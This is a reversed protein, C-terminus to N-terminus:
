ALAELPVSVATPLDQGTIEAGEAALQQLLRHEEVSLYVYPLRETRGPRHHVGGLNIKRLVTPERRYLQAVAEISGVLVATKVADSDWERLRAGAAAVTGFVVEMGDPVAMRYLEQEWGARAVEDDALVIRTLGIGQGWGVVVQGHILRDDVRCLVLTM